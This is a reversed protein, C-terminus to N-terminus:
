HTTAIKIKLEVFTSDIFTQPNKIHYEAMISGHKNKEPSKSM